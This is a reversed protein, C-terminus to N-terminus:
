TAQASKYQPQLIENNSLEARLKKAHQRSLLVKDGSDLVIEYTYGLANIKKIHKLNVLYSRHCRFFGETALKQELKNLDDRIVYAHQLTKMLVRKPKRSEIYLIDVLQLRLIRGEIEISIHAYPKLRLSSPSNIREQLKRVTKKIRAQNFPKLIYDFSYLEFAQLAYDPYATAFVIYIDAQKETLIRALELGNMDPMDIDMFVVQPQHIEWQVLAERSSSAVASVTVAPMSEIVTQLYKGTAAEDDVILIKLEVM